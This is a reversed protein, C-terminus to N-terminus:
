YDAPLKLDTGRTYSEDLYVLCQDMQKSFPSSDLLEKEGERDLVCLQNKADFFIAAQATSEPIGSLWKHAVEENRLELVQAGVDLIVRVGLKIAMDMLVRADLTGTTSYQENDEFSNEPWLLCELVKANTSVQAPLDCQYISLPLV